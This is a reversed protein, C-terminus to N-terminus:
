PAPPPLQRLFAALVAELDDEIGVAMGALDGEARRRADPDLALLGAM